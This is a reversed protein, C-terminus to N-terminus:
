SVRSVVEILEIRNGFPDRTEFRDHGPIPISELLECGAGALREKWLDISQVAYAVHAKTTICDFGDETGIHLQLDGVQCWFGGRGVLSEPKAIETLGLIGCYFHRAEDETGPPITIQVHDIGSIAPRDAPM